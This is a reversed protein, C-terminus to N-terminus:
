EDQLAGSQEAKLIAVLADFEECCDTSQRMHAQIEPPIADPPLDAPNVSALLEALCEVKRDFEACDAENETTHRLCDLLSQIKQKNADPLSPM